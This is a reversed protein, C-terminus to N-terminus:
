LRDYYDMLDPQEVKLGKRERIDFMIKEGKSDAELPNSPVLQWHDFNYTAFAKGSTKTQLVKSFPDDGLTESIPLFAVIVNKGDKVEEYQLEGRKAAIAQRVGSVVDDPCAIVCKFIPESFRPEALLAAAFFVRRATPQLQGMGRHISDAHLKVDLLNFRCGRMNEGALPGERAAWQLGSNVSEKIENLYQIGKTQDVLANAGGEAIDNPAFSWLKMCDTKDWGYEDILIRARKKVEQQMNVKHAEIALNCEEEMPAAVVYLRNHKNPSKSLAQKSSECTVTEKYSVNPVGRTFDVGAHEDRLDKLVTKLHEEGCGGVIHDGTPESTCTVLMDAKQLRKLGEVLKPLQKNDSPRIAIRYICSVNFKLTSFNYTKKTNTITATKMIYGDVGDLACINGAPCNIIPVIDKGLFLNISKPRGDQSCAFTEPDEPDFDPGRIHYKETGVTGSFARGIAYFRGASGTPTMKVVQFMMDGDTACAIMHKAIDSDAEGKYIEPIKKAQGQKPNYAHTALMSGCADACNLWSQMVKKLLAKGKLKKDATTVTIGLKTAMDEWKPDDAMIKKHLGIIPELIFQCFARKSDDVEVKTWTKKKANFFNDGWLRQLMKDEDMGKKAYIKAFDRISFAWGYFASGFIVNGLHPNVTFDKLGEVKEAPALAVNVNQVCKSIDQYLEEPDKDLVLISIDLKNIFLTPKTREKLADAIMYEMMVGVGDTVAVTCLVSDAIRLAAAVEPSYDIHGPTDLMTLAFKGTKEEKDLTQNGSEGKLDNYTADMLLHCPNCKYNTKKEREDARYLTFLQEGIKTDALYGLAAGFNDMLTSKGHGMSGLLAVNRVKTPDDMARRVDDQHYKPM